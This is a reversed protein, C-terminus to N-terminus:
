NKIFRRVFETNNCRSILNDESIAGEFFLNILSQDMTIMGYKSGTQILNSIQHTKGEKISNKIASTGLMIETAVVMSCSLIERGLVNKESINKRPILQQSLMGEFASALQSRIQHHESPSFMDVIRDICKGGGTTHLTSFVLHGTEAARLAAIMSEADRIEGILIIDSSQRLAARLGTNFNKTDKGVERQNVISKKHRHLYEIPDEITIIHKEQTSNILDLLSAITTSKGSGTSGTVLILGSRKETFSKLTPPLSLEELSPIKNPIIRIALSINEKQMFANVRYRRKDSTELSFDREGKSEVNKYINLSSIDILIKKSLEPSVITNDIYRFSEGIRATPVAGVSIYLDSAGIISSKELLNNINM